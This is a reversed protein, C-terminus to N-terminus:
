LNLGFDLIWFGFSLATMALVKLKGATLKDFPRLPRPLGPKDLADACDLHKVVSATEAQQSRKPGITKAIVIAVGQAGRV